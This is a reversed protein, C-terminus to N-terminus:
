KLDPMRTTVPKGAALETAAGTIVRMYAEMSRHFLQPHFDARTISKRVPERGNFGRVEIATDAALIRKLDGLGVAYIGTVEGDSFRYQFLDRDDRLLYVHQLERQFLTGTQEEYRYWGLDTLDKEDPVIGVEENTEKMVKNGCYGYPVHGGVTIDLCNPYNEKHPARFQFLIEPQMHVNRLIWLHVAEHPIGDRHAVDRAVSEGTPLGMEWDWVELIENTSITSNHMHERQPDRRRSASGATSRLGSPQGGRDGRGNGPV